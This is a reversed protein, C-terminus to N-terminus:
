PIVILDRTLDGPRENDPSNGCLTVSWATSLSACDTTVVASSIRLLNRAEPSWIILSPRSRYGRFSGLDRLRWRCEASGKSLFAASGGLEVTRLHNPIRHIRIQTTESGTAKFDLPSSDENRRRHLSFCRLIPPVMVV